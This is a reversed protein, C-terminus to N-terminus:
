YRLIQIFFLSKRTYILFSCYIAILQLSENIYDPHLSEFTNKVYILHFQIRIDDYNPNVIKYPFIFQYPFATVYFDM